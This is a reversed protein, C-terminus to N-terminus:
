YVFDMNKSMEELKKIRMETPPHTSLLNVVSRGSLAPIIFLSNAGQVKQVEKAQNKNRPSYSSIKRLASALAKPNKTIYASGRDAGFERYRSLAKILLTSILWVLASIAGMLVIAGGNRRGRGFMGMFMFQRMLLFALMSFVGAFTMVFMDRNKIHTLEHALVGKLEEENLTQMLSSTVAVVAHKKDRGTAFANPISSNMIAIRPMSINARSSLDAVIEYLKPYEQQSVVKAKTSFLVIKDAYFYQISIFLIAIILLPIFPMGLWTLISLFALYVIALLFMTLFMRGFIGKDIPFKM